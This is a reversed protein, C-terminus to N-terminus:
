KRFQSMGSLTVGQQKMDNLFTEIERVSLPYPRALLLVPEQQELVKQKATALQAEIAEKTLTEDVVIYNPVVRLGQAKAEQQLYTNKDNAAYIFTTNGKAMAEIMPVMSHEDQTFIEHPPAVLGQVEKALTLVNKLRFLNKAQGAEKLLAYPGPDEFPFNDSEMPIDLFVDRKLANVVGLQQPLNFAYPSFSMAVPYPLQIITSTVNKNLGMNVFLVALPAHKPAEAKKPENAEQHASVAEEAKVETTANANNHEDPKAEETHEEKPADETKAETKEEPKQTDESATAPKEEQTGDESAAAHEPTAAPTFEVQMSAVDVLVRRGQEAALKADQKVHYALLGGCVLCLLVGLWTLGLLIKRAPTSSM